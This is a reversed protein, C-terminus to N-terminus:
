LEHEHRAEEKKLIFKTPKKSQEKLKAVLSPPMHVLPDNHGSMYGARIIPPAKTNSSVLFRAVQNNNTTAHKSPGAGIKFVQLKKAGEVPTQTIQADWRTTQDGLMSKYQALREKPQPLFTIKTYFAHLASIDESVKAALLANAAQTEGIFLLRSFLPAIELIHSPLQQILNQRVFDGTSARLV